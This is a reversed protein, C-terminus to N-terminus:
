PTATPGPAPATPAPSPPPAAPSPTTPATGADEDDGSEKAAEKLLNKM